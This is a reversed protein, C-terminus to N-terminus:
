RPDGTESAAPSVLRKLLPGTLATTALAVLVFLTYLQPSLLGMGLGVDLVVLGMLGRTNMLLGLAAAQRSPMGVALGAVWTGGLKGLTAVGLLLALAWLDDSSTLGGLDTRLGTVVFFTPLLLVTVADQLRPVVCRALAGDTPVLAGLVFAGFLAHVGASETAWASFLVLVMLAAFRTTDQLDSARDLRRLAPRLVVVVLAGYACIGVFTTLFAEYEVQALAVVGALLAWATVDDAAACAIATVGLPTRTLGHDALIRALVPFATVSLAAGCFLAFAVFGTGAVGYRPYLWLAAAVGLVFPAVISAHSVAIAERARGVLLRTDLELGVLFMFLVVGLQSLSKLAPLAAPAILGEGLEPWLARLASPGLLIGAAIEGVVPPQGLFRRVLAGCVRASVVVVTLALLLTAASSGGAKRAVEGMEASLTPAVLGDGLHALGFVALVAVVLMGTYLLASRM